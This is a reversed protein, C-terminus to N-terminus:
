RVVIKIGVFFRHLYGDEDQKVHRLGDETQVRIARLHSADLPPMKLVNGSLDGEITLQAGEAFDGVNTFELSAMSGVLPSVRKNFYGTSLM